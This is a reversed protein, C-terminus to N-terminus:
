RCNNHLKWKEEHGMAKAFDPVQCRAAEAPDTPIAAHTQSRPVSKAPGTRDVWQAVGGILVVFVALIAIQVGSAGSRQDPPLECAGGPCLRAKERNFANYIKCGICIGFAAECFLLVLCISCVVLNVPGIVNNLVVLYLMTLALAFGIAWAFRKQPAGVYDPRQKRVVWQGLILGPAFRPNIALRISFDVLFAVVFLRTPQFNGVLWANMFAVIAFFFLIGASARVAHENLVPVAYEPFKQGFQFLSRTM